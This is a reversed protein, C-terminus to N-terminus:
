ASRMSAAMKIAAGLGKEKRVKKVRAKQDATLNRVLGMYRGHRKRMARVKPSVPKRRRPPPITFNAKRGPKRPVPRRAKRRRGGTRTPRKAMPFPGDKGVFSRLPSLSERLAAVNRGLDDLIMFIDPM